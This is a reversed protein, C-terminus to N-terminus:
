YPNDKQTNKSALEGLELEDLLLNIDNNFFIDLTGGSYNIIINNWKQLLVDNQKYIIRNGNEDFDILKNENVCM